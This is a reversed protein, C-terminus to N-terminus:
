IYMHIYIYVCEQYRSEGALRWCLFLLLYAVSGAIRFWMLVMWVMVGVPASSGCWDSYLFEQVMAFVLHKQKLQNTPTVIVSEVQEMDLDELSILPASRSSRDPRASPRGVSPPSRSALASDAGLSPRPSGDPSDRHSRQSGSRQMTREPHELQHVQLGWCVLHVGLSVYIWTSELPQHLTAAGNNQKTELVPGWHISAQQFPFVFM